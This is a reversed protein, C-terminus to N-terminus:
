NLFHILFNKYGKVYEVLNRNRIKDGGGLFFGKLIQVIEAIFPIEM